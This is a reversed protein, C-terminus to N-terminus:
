QPTEMWRRHEPAVRPILRRARALISLAYLGLAGVVTAWGAIVYGWQSM